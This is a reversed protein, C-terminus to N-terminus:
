DAIDFIALFGNGTTNIEEGWYRALEERVVTYCSNL